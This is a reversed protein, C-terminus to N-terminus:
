RRAVAITLWLACGVLGAVAITTDGGPITPVLAFIAEFMDRM